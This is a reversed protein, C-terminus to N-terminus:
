IDEYAHEHQLPVIRNVISKLIQTSLSTTCLHTLRIIDNLDCEQCDHNNFVDDFECERCPSSLLYTTIWMFGQQLDIKPKYTAPIPSASTEISQMIVRVAIARQIMSTKELTGITIPNRRKRHMRLNGKM